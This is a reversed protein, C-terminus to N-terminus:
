QELEMLTKVVMNTLEGLIVSKPLFPRGSVEPYNQFDTAMIDENTNKESIIEFLLM